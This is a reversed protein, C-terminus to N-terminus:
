WLRYAIGNIGTDKSLSYIDYVDKGKKPESAESAYSRVGWNLEPIQTQDSFPDNPIKRLFRIIKKNSYKSPVGMLAKLDPPYGSETKFEDVLENRDSALKYADIAVRMELLAAKLEREKQQKSAVSTVPIVISALLGLLVLSIILEVYTFGGTNQHICISGQKM